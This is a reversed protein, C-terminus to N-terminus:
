SLLSVPQLTLADGQRACYLHFAWRYWDPFSVKGAIHDGEYKRNKFRVSKGKKPRNREQRTSDDDSTFNGAETESEGATDGFSTANTLPSPSRAKNRRQVRGVGSYHIVDRSDPSVDRSFRPNPPSWSRSKGRRTRSRGREQARPMTSQFHRTFNHCSVLRSTGSPPQFTSSIVLFSRGNVLIISSSPSRFPFFFFLISGGDPLRDISM